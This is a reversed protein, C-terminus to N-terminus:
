AASFQHTVHYKEMPYMRYMSSITWRVNKICILFLEQGIENHRFPAERLMIDM